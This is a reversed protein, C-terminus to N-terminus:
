PATATRAAASALRTAHLRLPHLPRLGVNAHAAIECGAALRLDLTQAFRALVLQAETLAYQDGICLRPGGSFPFYAFMRARYAQFTDDSGWGPEYFLSEVAAIFGRSPTFISDRTDFEWALGIGSNRQGFSPDPLVPEPRGMDFTSDLDLYLWRLALWQDSDGIRRLVQQSSAWGELNYGIKRDGYWYDRDFRRAVTAAEAKPFENVRGLYDRSTKKHLPSIFDVYAM